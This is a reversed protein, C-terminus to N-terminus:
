SGGQCNPSVGSARGAKVWDELTFLHLAIAHVEGALEDALIKYVMQHLAVPRKGEFQASVLTVNFLLNAAPGAHMHSENLIILELPAFEQELKNRIIQEMTMGQINTM